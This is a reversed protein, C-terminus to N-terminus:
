GPLIHLTPIGLLLAVILYLGILAVIAVFGRQVNPPVAVNMWSLFWVIIAGVLMLVGVVIAADIIGLLLRGLSTM